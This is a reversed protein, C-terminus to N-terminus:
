KETNVVKNRKEIKNKAQNNSAEGLSSYELKVKELVSPKYGLDEGSRRIWTQAIRWIIISM